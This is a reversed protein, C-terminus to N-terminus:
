FNQKFYDNPDNIDTGANRGAMELNTEHKRVPMSSGNNHQNGSRSVGIEPLV